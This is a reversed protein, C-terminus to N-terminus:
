FMLTWIGWSVLATKVISFLSLNLILVLFILLTVAIIMGVKFFSGLVAFIFSIM